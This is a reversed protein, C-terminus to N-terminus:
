SKGGPQDPSVSGDTYYKELIELYSNGALAMHKAGNQSLGVGHGFGGGMVYYGVMNGEENCISQLSIFASPMLEKAQYSAGNQLAVEGGQALVYRINYEGWVYLDGKECAIKMCDAVGSEQRAAISMDKINGLSERNIAQEAGDERSQAFVLRDNVAQRDACRAFIRERDAKDCRYEWRYFAEESEPDSDEKERIFCFFDYNIDDIEEESGSIVPRETEGGHWVTIQASRGCSTSYYYCEMYSGDEKRLVEGATEEVATDGQDSTELNCYVQCATSDDVAANYQPYAKEEQRMQAYTRACVAQAKLAELPYSSPMESPLVGKVYEELAVENILVLGTEERRIELTGEYSPQGCARLLSTVRITSDEKGTASVRIIDTKEFYPSDARIELTEGGAELLIKEHYIGGAGLLVVRILAAETENGAAQTESDTGKEQAVSNEAMEEGSAKEQDAEDRRERDGFLSYGQRAREAIEDEWLPEIELVESQVTHGAELCAKQVQRYCFLLWLFIALFYAALFIFPKKNRMSWEIGPLLKEHM